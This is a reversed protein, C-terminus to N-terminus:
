GPLKDVANKIKMYVQSVPNGRIATDAKDITRQLLVLIVAVLVLIAMIFLCSFISLSFQVWVLCRYLRTQRRNLVRYAAVDDNDDDDTGGGEEENRVKKERGDKEYETM